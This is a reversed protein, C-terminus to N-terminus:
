LAGTEVFAQPRVILDDGDLSLHLQGISVFGKERNVTTAQFKLGHWPCILAKDCVKAEALPGGEHPCVEPWVLFSRGADETKVLLDVQGVSIKRIESSFEKLPFRGQMESLPAIVNDTLENSNLFNPEDTKFHYGKKRLDLRRQRIPFDEKNLKENINILRKLIPKHM